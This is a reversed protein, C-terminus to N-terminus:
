KSIQVLEQPHNPVRRIYEGGGVELPSAQMEAGGWCVSVKDRAFACLSPYACSQRNQPFYINLLHRKEGADAAANVEAVHMATEREAHEVQEVWDRLQDDSRYVVVPPVFVQDLPHAETVGMAQADSRYGLARPAMGITSDEGSMLVESRDLKDIWDKVSGSEWVARPRWNGAYLKSAQQDEPRIFEWAWCIDGVRFAETNKGSKPTSQAVYQYILHSKQSRCDVGLRQSLERDKWREGKLLFEYRIAHIRPPAPLYYLFEAMRNPIPVGKVHVTNMSADLPVVDHVARWWEGLRKEVEVGESLGQMDHEIDKAKRTDWQGTTKYSLLYLENTQRHRLLADPRSMFYLEMANNSTVIPAGCGPCKDPWPHASDFTSGLWQACKKSCEARVWEGEPQWQSLKWEGEREVELVEFEELLPRLRRRAYARVLGEVLASQEAFLYREFESRAVAPDVGQTIGAIDSEAMGLERAQAIMQEALQKAEPTQGATLGANENADLELGAAHSSFDALVARVASDELAAMQVPIMGNIFDEVANPNLLFFMLLEALGVHGSSGVALALPTRKPVIGTGSEHYVLWRKRDCREREVIRSRDTYIKITM